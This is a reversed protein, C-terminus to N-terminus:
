GMEAANSEQKVIGHTLPYKGSMISTVPPCTYPVRCLANEFMVSESTFRDINPSTQKNYGYCGLNRARLADIL